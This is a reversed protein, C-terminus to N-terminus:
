MYMICTCAHVGVVHVHVHACTTHVKYTCSMYMVHVHKRGQRTYVSTLVHVNIYKKVSKGGRAWEGEWEGEYGWEGECEAM